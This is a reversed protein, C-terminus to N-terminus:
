LASVVYYEAKNWVTQQTCYDNSKSTMSITDLEM